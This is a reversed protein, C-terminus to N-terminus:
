PLHIRLQDDAETAAARHVNGLQDGQEGVWVALLAQGVDVSHIICLALAQRELLAGCLLWKPPYILSMLGSM